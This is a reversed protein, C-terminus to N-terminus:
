RPICSFLVDRGLLDQRLSDANLDEESIHPNRSMCVEDFFQSIKRFKAFNQLIKQFQPPARLVKCFKAFCKLLKRCLTCFKAFCNALKRCVLVCAFGGCNAFLM